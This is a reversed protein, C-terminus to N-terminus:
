ELVRLQARQPVGTIALYLESENEQSMTTLHHRLGVLGQLPQCLLLPQLSRQALRIIGHQQGAVHLLLLVGEHAKRLGDEVLRGRRRGLHAPKVISYREPQAAVPIILPDAAFHCKFPHCPLELCGFPPSHALCGYLPVMKSADCHQLLHYSTEQREVASNHQASVACTARRHVKNWRNWVLARM